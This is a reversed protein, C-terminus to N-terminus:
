NKDSKAVGNKVVEYRRKIKERPVVVQSGKRRYGCSNCTLYQIQTDGSISRQSSRVRMHGQCLQPCPSGPRLSSATM